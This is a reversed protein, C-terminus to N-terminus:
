LFMQSLCTLNILSTILISSITDNGHNPYKSQKIQWHCKLQCCTALETYNRDYFKKCYLGWCTFPFIDHACLDGKEISILRRLIVFEKQVMFSKVVAIRDLFLSSHNNSETVEVRTQYKSALNHAWVQLPTSYPASM